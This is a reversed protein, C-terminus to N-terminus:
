AVVESQQVPKTVRVASQAEVPNPDTIAAAREAKILASVHLTAEESDEPIVPKAALVAVIGLAERVHKANKIAFVANLSKDKEGDVVTVTVEDQWKFLDAAIPLRKLAKVIAEMKEADNAIEPDLVWAGLRSVHKKTPIKLKECRAIEEDTLPKTVPRNKLDFNAMATGEVGRVTGPKAKLAMGAVIMHDIVSSKVKTEFVAKMAEFKAIVTCLATFSFLGSIAVKPVEPKPPKPIATQIKKSKDFVQKKVTIM